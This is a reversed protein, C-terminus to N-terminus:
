SLSILYVSSGSTVCAVGSDTIGIVGDVSIPLRYIVPNSVGYEARCVYEGAFGFILNEHALLNTCAIPMHLLKEETNKVARVDYIEMNDAAQSNPVFLLMPNDPDRSQAELYWGYVTVRQSTQETGYYDYVKLYDTGVAAIYSSRFMAKYVLQEMDSISGTERKGPKYTSIKATPTSGTADLTMIWFLERGTFFGYDLVTVEDFDTLIDIENGSLDTVIVTSEYEPGLVIAAYEEGVYASLIESSMNKTVTQVGTERNLMYLRTGSWVAVGYDSVKYGSDATVSTNWVYAGSTDIAHLSTGEIYFINNKNVQVSGSQATNLRLASSLYANDGPKIIDALLYAALILLLVLALAAPRKLTFENDM